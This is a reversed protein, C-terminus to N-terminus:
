KLNSVVEIASDIDPLTGRQTVVEAHAVTGDLDVVFLSRTPMGREANFVGYRDCVEGHPWFDSLVLPTEIGEDGLTARVWANQIPASDCSVELM